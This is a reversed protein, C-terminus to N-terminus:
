FFNGEDEDDGEGETHPTHYHAQDVLMADTDEEETTPSCGWAGLM